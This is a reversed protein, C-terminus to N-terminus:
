LPAVLSNGLLRWSAVIYNALFWRTAMVIIFELIFTDTQLLLYMFYLLLYYHLQVIDIGVVGFHLSTYVNRLCSLVTYMCQKKYLSIIM